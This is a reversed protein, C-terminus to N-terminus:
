EDNYKKTHCIILETDVTKYTHPTHLAEIM